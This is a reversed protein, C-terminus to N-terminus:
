GEVVVKVLEPEVGIREVSATRKKAFRQEPVVLARHPHGRLADRLRRRLRSRIPALRAPRQADSAPDFDYADSLEHPELHWTARCTEAVQALLPSHRVDLWGDDTTLRATALTAYWVMQDPSLRLALDNVRVTRAPVDVVVRPAPGKDLAAEGADLASAFTALDARCLLHRLRPVRVEVPLVSVESASLAHGGRDEVRCPSQQAPFFFGTTPDDAYKPDLRVDVLRDEPRALLGFATAMDVTLTRRRGGVLAFVLPHREQEQLERVVRWLQEMFAAAHEVAVDDELVEDGPTTVVHSVVEALQPDSLSSRLDDLPRAGGLLEAEVYRLANGYLVLHATTVRLEWKQHLAWVLGVLPAPNGGPAAVLVREKM